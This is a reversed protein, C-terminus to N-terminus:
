PTENIPRKRHQDPGQPERLTLQSTHEGKSLRLSWVYPSLKEDLKTTM